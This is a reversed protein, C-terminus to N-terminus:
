TPSEQNHDVVLTGDAHIVVTCGEYDFTISLDASFGDLLSDLAGPDIIDYIPTLKTADQDTVEGVATVIAVSPREFERWNFSQETDAPSTM